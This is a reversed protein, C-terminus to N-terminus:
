NSYTEKQILECNKGSGSDVRLRQRGLDNGLRTNYNQKVTYARKKPM